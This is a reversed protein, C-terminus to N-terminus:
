CSVYWSGGLPTSKYVRLQSEPHGHRGGLEQPDQYIGRPIISGVSTCQSRSESNVAGVPASRLRLTSSASFTEMLSSGRGVATNAEFPNWVWVSWPVAM